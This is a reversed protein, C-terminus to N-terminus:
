ETEGAARIVVPKPTEAAGTSSTATASAARKAPEEAAEPRVVEVRGTFTAGDEIVIRRTLIDGSAKATRGLFVREAGRLLGEVEGYVAIDRAEIDSNVRGNPGVTVKGGDIHIKGRVNGDIYLDEEGNIVGHIQLSKAITSAGTHTAVAPVTQLVPQKVVPNIESSRVPAPTQPAVNEPAPRQPIQKEQRGWM